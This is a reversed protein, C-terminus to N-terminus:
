IEVMVDDDESIIDENNWYGNPIEHQRQTWEDIISKPIFIDKTSMGSRCNCWTTKRHECFTKKNWACNYDCTKGEGM